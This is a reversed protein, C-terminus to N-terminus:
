VVLSGAVMVAPFVTELIAIMTPENSAPMEPESGACAL